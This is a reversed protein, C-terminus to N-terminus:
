YEHSILYSRESNMWSQINTNLTNQLLLQTLLVFCIYLRSGHRNERRDGINTLVHTNTSVLSLILQPSEKERIIIIERINPYTKVYQNTSRKRYSCIKKVDKIDLGPYDVGAPRKLNKDACIADGTAKFM